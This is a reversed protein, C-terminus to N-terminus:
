SVGELAHYGRTGKRHFRLSLAVASVSLGVTLGWWLGAAGGHLVYAFLLAAPMGVAWHSLLHIAFPWATDGAGRLAGSAVAQVGDSLAFFGAVRILVAATPVVEADNTFVGVLPEPFLLFCAGTCAMLGFGLGISVRGAALAGKPDGAGIHQGVVVSAASGVGLCCQFPASALTLAVHHSALQVAGMRGMLFAVSSFFAVEFAFQWGMPLGVKLIRLLEPRARAAEAWRGLLPGKTGRERGLHRVALALMLAQVVNVLSTALGAGMAGQAPLGLAPLGLSLLAGDGFVLLADAPVNLVVAVLTSIVAPRTINHGQLYGRLGFFLLTPLFGPMRGLVYGRTPDIVALDIGTAPLLWLAGLLLLGAPGTALASLLASQRMARRARAFDGRGVAQSVIPEIGLVVGMCAVLVTFLISNGLSVGALDAASARGVFATDTLSM